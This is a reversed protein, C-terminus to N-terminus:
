TSTSDRRLSEVADLLEEARVPAGIASLQQALWLVAPPVTDFAALRPSSRTVMRGASRAMAASIDTGLTVTAIRVSEYALMDTVLARQLPRAEASPIPAGDEVVLLAGLPTDQKAIALADDRLKSLAAATLEGRRVQVVVRKRWLAFVMDNGRILYEVAVL